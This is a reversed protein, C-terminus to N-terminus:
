HDLWFGGLADASLVVLDRESEFTLTFEPRGDVFTVDETQNLLAGLAESTHSMELSVFEGALANTAAPHPCDLWDICFPAFGDLGHNILNMLQWHLMEGDSPMCGTLDAFEEKARELNPHGIAIHDLQLSLREGM